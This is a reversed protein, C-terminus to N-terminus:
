KKPMLQQLDDLKVPVPGVDKRTTSASPPTGPRPAALPTTSGIYALSQIERVAQDADILKPTVRGVLVGFTTSTEVYRIQGASLSFELTNEIETETAVRMPGPVRDVFFFSGPRSRGVVDDNLRIEPQLAAGVAAAPRYFFIRGQGASVEPISAQVETFRPGSACGALVVMAAALWPSLMAASKM